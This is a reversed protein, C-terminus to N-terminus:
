AGGQKKCNVRDTEARLPTLQQLHCRDNFLELRYQRRTPDYRVMSLSAQAPAFPWRQRTKLGLCAAIVANILRGHSVLAIRRCSGYRRNIVKLLLRTRALLKRESEGGFAAARLGRRAHPTWFPYRSRIEALTMGEVAGWSCERLLPMRVPELGAERAIIEATQWARELDSSLIVQLGILDVRRSLSEAERRGRDSLPYDLRGQLRGEQNANTIGHRIM